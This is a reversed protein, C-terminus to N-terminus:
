RHNQKVELLLSCVLACNFDMILRFNRCVKRDKYCFYPVWHDLVAVTSVSIVLPSFVIISLFDNTM